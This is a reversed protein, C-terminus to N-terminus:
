RVDSLMGKLEIQRINPINTILIPRLMAIYNNHRGDDVIKVDDPM